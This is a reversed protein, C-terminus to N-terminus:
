HKGNGQAVTGSVRWNHNGPHRTKLTAQLKANATDNYFCDAISFEIPGQMEAILASIASDYDSNSEAIMAKRKIESTTISIAM